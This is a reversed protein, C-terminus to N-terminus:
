VGLLIKKFLQNSFFFLLSCFLMFFLLTPLSYVFIGATALWIALELTRVDWLCLMVLCLVSMQLINQFFLDFCQSYHHRRMFVVDSFVRRPFDFCQSYQNIEYCRCCGDSIMWSSSKKFGVFYIIIWREFCIMQLMMIKETPTNIVDWLCLMVLCQVSMQLINQFFLDFCQSYHHCRMFVVDGFMSCEDPPYESLIFWLVPLLSSMEYVCCWWVNFVWRSSVRFSYILASPTNIVDWLCLMVLCLVSIQLISQFFLDFCQSYQHCRM